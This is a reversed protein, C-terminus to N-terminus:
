SEGRPLRGGTTQVFRDKAQDGVPRRRRLVFSTPAQDVSPSSPEIGLVTLGKQEKKVKGKDKEDMTGM